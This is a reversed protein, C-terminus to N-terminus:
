RSLKKLVVAPYKGMRGEDTNTQWYTTVEGQQSVDGVTMHTGGSKLQVVDGPAVSTQTIFRQTSM